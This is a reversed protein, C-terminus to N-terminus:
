IMSLSLINQLEDYSNSVEVDMGDTLVILTGKKTETFYAIRNINVVFKEKKITELEIFM